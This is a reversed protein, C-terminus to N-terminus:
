KREYEVFDGNKELKVNSSCQCYNRRKRTIKDIAKVNRRNLESQIPSLYQTYEEGADHFMKYLCLLVTPSDVSKLVASSVSHTDGWVPKSKSLAEEAEEIRSSDSKSIGYEEVEGKSLEAEANKEIVNEPDVDYESLDIRTETEFPVEYYWHNGAPDGEEDYLAMQDDPVSEQESVWVRYYDRIELVENDGQEETDKSVNYYFFGPPGEHVEKEDPANFPADVSKISEVEETEELVAHYRTMRDIAVKVRPLAEHTEFEVVEEGPTILDGEDINGSREVPGIDMAFKKASRMLSRIREKDEFPIDAEFEFNERIEGLEEGNNNTIRLKM